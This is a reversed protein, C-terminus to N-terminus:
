IPRCCATSMTRGPPPAVVQGVSLEDVVRQSGYATRVRALIAQRTGEDPVTGRVVVQGAGSVLAPAGTPAVPPTQAMAVGSLAWALAGARVCWAKM